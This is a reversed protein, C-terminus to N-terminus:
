RATDDFRLVEVSPDGGCSRDGSEALKIAVRAAELAVNEITDPSWGGKLPEGVGDCACSGGLFWNCPRPEVTGDNRNRPGPQGGGNFRVHLMGPKGTSVLDECGVLVVDIANEAPVKEWLADMCAAALEDLRTAKACLEVLLEPIPRDGDLLQGAIGGVVQKGGGRYVFTKSFNDTDIGNLRARCDAAVAAAGECALAVLITV